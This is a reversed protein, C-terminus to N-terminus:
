PLTLPGRWASLGGRLNYVHDFGAKKLRAAARASRSGSRCYLLFVDNRSSDYKTLVTHFSGSMIDASEAKDLHGSRYEGATRVDLVHANPHERWLARFQSEDVQGYAPGSFLNKIFHLM